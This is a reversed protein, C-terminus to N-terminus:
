NAIVQINALARKGNDLKFAERGHLTRQNDFLIVDGEQWDHYYCYKEDMVVKELVEFIEDCKEQPEGPIRLLWSPKEGKPSPFGINLFEKGDVEIFGQIPHWQDSSATYYSDVPKGEIGKERLIDLYEQPVEKLASEADAVFTRGGEVVNKYDQCVIAVRLVNLGMLSGDRHLPLFGEGLLVEGDDRKSADINLVAGKRRDNQTLKGFQCMFDEAEEVQVPNNTFVLYYYQALLDDIEQKSFDTMKRDNILAGRGSETLPQYTATM